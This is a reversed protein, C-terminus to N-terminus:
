LVGGQSINPNVYNIPIPYHQNNEKQWNEVHFDLLTLSLKEKSYKSLRNKMESDFVTKEELLYSMFPNDPKGQILNDHVTYCTLAILDNLMFFINEISETFQVTIMVPSNRRLEIHIDRKPTSKYKDSISFIDEIVTGIKSIYNRFTNTLINFILKPLNNEMQLIYKMDGINRSYDKLQWPTMNSCQFLKCIRQYISKKKKPTYQESLSILKCYNKMMRFDYIFASLNLAKELYRNAEDMQDLALLINILPFYFKEKEEEKMSLYSELLAPLVESIYEKSTIRQNEGKIYVTDDTTMLYQLLGYTYVIQSMPLTSEIFCPFRFDVFDLNLQSFDINEFRCRHFTAAELTCNTIEIDKLETEDFFTNSFTSSYFSLDHIKTGIFNSNDFAIAIPKEASIDCQFFDCYEFDGQDMDCQHFTCEYFSSGTVAADNFKAGNFHCDTLKLRKINKTRYDGSFTRGNAITNNFLSEQPYGYKKLIKKNKNM